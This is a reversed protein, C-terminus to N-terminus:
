FEVMRPVMVEAEGDTQLSGLTDRIKIKRSLVEQKDRTKFKDAIGKDFSYSVFVDNKVFKFNGGRYVEVEMDLFEEFDVRKGSSEQYVRHSINLSANRLEPSTMIAQEIKPKYDSNFERFWGTIHSAQINDQIVQIAEENSIKHLGKSSNDYHIQKWMTFASNAIDKGEFLKSEIIDEAYINTFDEFNDYELVKDHFDGYDEVNETEQNFEKIYNSLDQSIEGQNLVKYSNVSPLYGYNDTNQNDIAIQAKELSEFHSDESGFPCNGKLAKCPAPVGKSNIHFKAM